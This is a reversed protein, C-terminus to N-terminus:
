LELAALARELRARADRAVPELAPNPALGMM